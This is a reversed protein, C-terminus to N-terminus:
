ADQDSHPLPTVGLATHVFAELAELASVLREAVTDNGSAILCVCSQAVADCLEEYQNRNSM